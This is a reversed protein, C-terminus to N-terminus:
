LAHRLSVSPHVTGCVSHHVSYYAPSSPRLPPHARPPVPADCAAAPEGSLLCYLPVSPFSKVILSCKIRVWDPPWNAWNSSKVPAHPHIQKCQSLIVFRRHKLPPRCSTWLSGAVREPRLFDWTWGPLRMLGPEGGSRGRPLQQETAGRRRRRQEEEGRRPHFAHSSFCEKGLATGSLSLHHGNLLDWPLTNNRTKVVWVSVFSRQSLCLSCICVFPPTHKCVYVCDVSCTHM